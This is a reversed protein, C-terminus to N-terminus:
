FFIKVCNVVHSNRAFLSIRKFLFDNVRCPLLLLIIEDNPRLVFYSSVSFHMNKSGVLLFKMYTLKM